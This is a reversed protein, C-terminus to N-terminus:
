NKSFSSNLLDYFHGNQAESKKNSLRIMQMIFANDYNELQIKIFFIATYDELKRKFVFINLSYKCGNKQQLIGWYSNRL